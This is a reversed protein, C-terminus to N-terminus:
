CIGLVIILSVLDETFERVKVREVSVRGCSFKGRRCLIKEVEPGKYISIGRNLINKRGNSVKM